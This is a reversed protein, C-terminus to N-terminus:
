CFEAMLRLVKKFEDDGGGGGKRKGGLAPTVINKFTDYNYGFSRKGFAGKRKSVWKKLAKSVQLNGPVDFPRTPDADVIVAVLAPNAALFQQAVGVAQTVHGRTSDSQGIGKELINWCLHSFRDHEKVQQLCQKYFWEKSKLAVLKGKKV